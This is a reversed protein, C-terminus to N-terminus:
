RECSMSVAFLQFTTCYAASVIINACTEPSLGPSNIWTMASACIYSLCMGATSSIIFFSGFGAGFNM